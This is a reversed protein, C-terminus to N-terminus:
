FVSFDVAAPAKGWVGSPFKCHGLEKYVWQRIEQEDACYIYTVYRNESYKTLLHTKEKYKFM